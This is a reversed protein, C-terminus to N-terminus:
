KASQLLQVIRGEDNDASNEEIAQLLERKQMRSPDVLVDMVSVGTQRVEQLFRRGQTVVIHVLQEYEGRTLKQEFVSDTVSLRSESTDWDPAILALVSWGHQAVLGLWRQGADLFRVLKSKHKNWQVAATTEAGILGHQTKSTGRHERPFPYGWIQEIMTEYAAAKDMKRVVGFKKGSEECRQNYVQALRALAFRRQYCNLAGSTEALEVVGILTKPDDVRLDHQARHGQQPLALLVDKLVKFAFPSGVAQAMITTRDPQPNETLPEAALITSSSPDSPPVQSRRQPATAEAKAIWSLEDLVCCWKHETETLSKRFSSQSKQASSRSGLMSLAVIKEDLRDIMNNEM